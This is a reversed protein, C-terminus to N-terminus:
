KWWHLKGNSDQFTEWKCQPWICKWYFDFNKSDIQKMNWGCCKPSHTNFFKNFLWKM